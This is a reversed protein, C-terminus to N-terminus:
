IPLQWLHISNLPYDRPMGAVHGDSRRQSEALDKCLNLQIKGLVLDRWDCSKYEFAYDVIM